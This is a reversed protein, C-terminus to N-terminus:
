FLDARIIFRSVIRTADLDKDISPRNALYNLRRSPVGHDVLAIRTGAEEM